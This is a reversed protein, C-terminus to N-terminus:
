RKGFRNWSTIEAVPKRYAPRFDAGLAHAVPLLVTQTYRRPIGLLAAVEDARRLHVTTWASGLGRARLALMFSWAAQLISGWLSAQIFLSQGDPRGAMLPLVIMPLRHFHDRLHIVSESILESRPVSAGVYRGGVEGGLSAVHEEMAERYLRALEGITSRDDVLLWHWTELNSGNPAQQAIEVCREVLARDVPRDFDLRRRVSRTTTLLGDPTLAEV